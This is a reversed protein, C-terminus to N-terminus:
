WVEVKVNPYKRQFSESWLAMLNNLTDSGVSNVKGSLSSVSKYDKLNADVASASTAMTIAAATFAFTKKLLKM